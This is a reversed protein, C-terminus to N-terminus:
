CKPTSISVRTKLHNVCHKQEVELPLALETQAKQGAIEQILVDLLLCM